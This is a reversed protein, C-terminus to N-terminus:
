GDAIQSALIPTPRSIILADARSGRRSDATAYRRALAACILLQMPYYILIPLMILGVASAPFLANAIPVGSVLSKQAGCFVIAAEDARNFRLARSGGILFPLVAGLLLASVLGLTAMLMPPLRDWVGHVVASSFAGYVVLLISARDTIALIPRNREVWEGLWPRLLHGLIFPVLLQLAVQWIGSLDFVSNRLRSMM